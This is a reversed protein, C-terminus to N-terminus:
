EADKFEDGFWLDDSGWNSDYEGLQVYRHFSSWPWDQVRDVLHHKFPNVHIYDVCRRLDADDKVTHEFFRRQWIGQEGRKARSSSLAGSMGGNALWARTFSSKIQRWRTSYDSDGSPLIWVTHLHDPLLVIATILFPRDKRTELIATRLLERGRYTTLIPRREHTVVTFFFTRGEKSRRYDSM